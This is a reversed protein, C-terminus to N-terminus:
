WWWGPHGVMVQFVAKVAGSSLWTFDTRWYSCFLLVMRLVNLM